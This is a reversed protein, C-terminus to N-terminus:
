FSIRYGTTGFIVYYLKIILTEDYNFPIITKPKSSQRINKIPEFINIIPISQSTLAKKAYSIGKYLKQSKVKNRAVIEINYKLCFVQESGATCIKQLAKSLYAILLENM